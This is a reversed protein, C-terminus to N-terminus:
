GTRKGIMEIEKHCFPCEEKNGTRRVTAMLSTKCYPCTVALLGREGGKDLAPFSRPNFNDMRNANERQGWNAYRYNKIIGSM